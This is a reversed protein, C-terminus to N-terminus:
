SPGKNRRNYELEDPDLQFGLYVAYKELGKTPDKIPLVIDVENDSIRVHDAAAPFAFSVGFVQKAQAAPYFGPIAVFYAARANRDPAAPGRTFVMQVQLTVTLRREKREYKCSGKFGTLEGQLVIDTVDRGTGPRFQTFTSAESLVSVDPCPSQEKEGFASCGALLATAAALLLARRWAAWARGNM